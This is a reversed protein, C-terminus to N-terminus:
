ADTRPLGARETRATVFRLGARALRPRQTSQHQWLAALRQAGSESRCVAFWTSGSGSLQHAVVEGATTPDSCLDAIEALEPRLAQAAESLRNLILSGLSDLDAQELRCRVDAVDLPQVPPQLRSFVAPTSLGFCPLILVVDLCLPFACPDVIEGRGPCWAPGGLLFFNVDSGLKAALRHLDALGLQLDWLDNLALLTTAANSSGGGLGAAWPLRKNLHIEAGLRCGTTERLLRAARLVLNDPGLDLRPDDCTLTVDPAATFVLEDHWDLPVMLSALEHFGDPRRGLVELFLNLKAPASRILRRPEAANM